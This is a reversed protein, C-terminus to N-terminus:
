EEENPEVAAKQEVPPLPKGWAEMAKAAYAAPDPHRNAVAVAQFIEKAETDKM